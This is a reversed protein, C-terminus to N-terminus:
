FRHTTKNNPQPTIRLFFGSRSAIGFPRKKQGVVNEGLEFNSISGGLVVLFMDPGRSLYRGYLLFRSGSYDYGFQFLAEVFVLFPLFYM